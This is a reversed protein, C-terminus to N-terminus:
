RCHLCTMVGKNIMPYIMIHVQPMPFLPFQNFHELAVRPGDVRHAPVGLIRGHKCGGRVVAGDAHISIM